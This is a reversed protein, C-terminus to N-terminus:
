RRRAAAGGASAPALAPPASPQQQRPSEIVLQDLVRLNDAWSYHREVCRRAASGIRAAKQPDGLLEVTAAAFAEDGDAVLIEKGPEARIGEAAQTTAIVARGMAMAELVKNQIGRAVRLPALCVSEGCLYERIDAVFGTVTVGPTACLRLVKKSPRSGVIFLRVEPVVARIRGWVREVFWSVGDINPWYDMQGTFVLAPGQSGKQPARATCFLPSFFELDVGNSMVALHKPTPTTPFHAREQESVVFLREFASAIRREYEAIRRAEYRYIWAAWPPSRCAYQEWKCSDVDILDMIRLGRAIAGDAHRSRFLYEAMASSFGFFVEIQHEEIIRDIKEQLRPAYFHTVTISKSRLLGRLALVAGLRRHIREFVFGQVCAAAQPVYEMDAPDDILSALFVEHRKTLHQLINFARIKDGKNPPFPIRHTLLLIRM